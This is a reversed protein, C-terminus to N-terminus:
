SNRTIGLTKSATTSADPSEEARHQQEVTTSPSPARHGVECPKGILTHVSRTVDEASKLCFVFGACGAFADLRRYGPLTM